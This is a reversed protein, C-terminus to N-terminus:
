ARVERCVPDTAHAMAITDRVKLLEASVSLAIEVPKKGLIGDIGIPCVLRELLHGPLGQKKMLREFRRRKSVSGILGCYAFDRRQLVRQCIEQDLAHSHTMVIFYSGAPMALIERAPDSTEVVQINEPTVDPFVNRRADIWRVSCDLRSLADVTAAGVHGAGFIAINFESERVPELLYDGAVQSQARSLLVARAASITEEPCNGAKRFTEHDDAAVLIKDPSGNLPSALVVPQRRQYCASLAHLWSGNKVDFTEFLIEVVGGCCQGCNAGLAFRRTGQDPQQNRLQRYAIQVCQYELQGGGITGITETETVIMRAGVERPASGRVSVVALLVASTGAQELSLLSPLLSRM